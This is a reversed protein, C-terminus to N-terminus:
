SCAESMAAAGERSAKINDSHGPDDTMWSAMYTKMDAKSIGSNTATRGLDIYEATDDSGQFVPVQSKVVSDTTVKGGSKTNLYETVGDISATLRLSAVAKTM